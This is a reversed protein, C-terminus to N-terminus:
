AENNNKTSPQHNIIEKALEHAGSLFNKQRKDYSIDSLMDLETLTDQLSIMGLQLNSLLSSIKESLYHSAPPLVGFAEMLIGDISASNISEKIGGPMAFVQLDVDDSMAGSVIMPAHTAIVLKPQHLYFQDLLKRCYESQWKPHLSNEPEDILVITEDKLHTSLFAYTALLTLEGSSAEHLPHSKGDKHIYILINQLINAQRLLNENEIINFIRDIFFSESRLDIIFTVFGRRFSDYEDLTKILYNIEPIDNQNINSIRNILDRQTLNRKLIIKITITPEYGAYLLVKEIQRLTRFEDSEHCLAAKFANLAYKKGIAQSLKTYNKWRHSPLRDFVTNSISIVNKGSSIAQLALERLRRSKGSGNKGILFTVHSNDLSHPLTAM